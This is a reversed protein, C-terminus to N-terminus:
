AGPKRAIVEICPGRDLLGGVAHVLEQLGRRSRAGLYLPHKPLYTRLELIEFGEREVLARLTRPVFYYTHYEFNIDRHFWGYSGDGAVRTVALKLTDILSHFQNPVELLLLGGPALLRRCQSLTHRPDPVHELSMSFIVDFASGELCGLDWAEAGKVDLGLTTRAYDAMIESSEVGLVDWGRKQAVSLCYGGDLCGIGLVRGHAPRLRELRAWKSDYFSERPVARAANERSYYWDTRYMEVLEGMTRRPNLFLLGCESCRCVMIPDSLNLLRTKAPEGRTSSSGCLNCPITEPM